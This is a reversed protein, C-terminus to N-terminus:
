RRTAWTTPLDAGGEPTWREGMRLRMPTPSVPGAALMEGLQFSRSEAIMGKPVHSFVVALEDLDAVSNVRMLLLNDCQSLVNRHVKQPRQTSLVLYIGFKRGEGAIWVTHDTVARELPTTADPSCVNHAEDIVVSVPQRDPRRRLRGLLALAVVSRERADALSGTDLVLTRTGVVLDVLSPEDARAWVSWSAVGLNGIRQALRRSADDFRRLLTREVDDVGYHESGISRTAELYAAYEEADATADLGFTLAQEELTLDSLRIALPLDAGERRGAVRVGAVSEYRAKLEAYAARSLPRSRSANIQDRTRLRGLGVYDSNPDVIVMPLSTDLLVRELLVGLSYTKGSGSQGCLFTHRSFGSARMVADVGARSMRGVHLGVSSGLAGTLVAEVDADSSVDLEGRDFGDGPARVLRDGDLRGLVLGTGRVTRVVVDVNANTVVSDDIGLMSTAVDVSMGTRESVRLDQVQMVLRTGSGVTVTVFGGVEVGSDFGLVFEVDRGNLSWVTQLPKTHELLQERLQRPSVKRNTSSM